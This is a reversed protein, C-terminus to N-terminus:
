RCKGEMAPALGISLCAWALGLAVSSGLRVKRGTTGFVGHDLAAASQLDRYAFIEDGDQRSEIVAGDLPDGFDRGPGPGIPLM